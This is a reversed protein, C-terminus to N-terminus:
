RQKDEQEEAPRRAAEWLRYWIPGLPVTLLHWVAHADLVFLVPPFDFIEFLSAAALWLNCLLCLRVAERSPARRLCWVLWLLSHLAALPLCVSIHQGHSLRGSLMSVVYLAGVCLSGAALIGALRGRPLLLRLVSWASFAILVFAAAFDLRATLDTKRGHYAASLVWAQLHVLPLARLVWDDERPRRALRLLHPVANALSFLCAAPEQM